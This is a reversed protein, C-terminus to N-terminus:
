GAIQRIADATRAFFAEVRAGQDLLPTKPDVALAAAHAAAVRDGDGADPRMERLVGAALLFAERAQLAHTTASPDRQMADARERIESARANVDMGAPARDRVAVLADAVHRLGDATYDHSPGMASRGGEAFRALRDVPALAAAADGGSAATDAVAPAAQRGAVGVRDDDRSGLLWWALVALLAVGLLVWPWLTREKHQVPITAM